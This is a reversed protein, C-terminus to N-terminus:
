KKVFLHKKNNLRIIYVGAQLDRIEIPENAVGKKVIKGITNIITFNTNKSGKLNLHIFDSSPNPYVIPQVKSIVNITREALPISFKGLDSLDEQPFIDWEAIRYFPNPSITYPKRRLIENQSFVVSENTYGLLDILTDNKFLGIADNGNFSMVGNNTINAKNRIEESSNGHAIVYVEKDHLTGNLSLINSWTGSGNTVKKLSYASLDITYGTINAIEIAKNYSNGELYESIFIDSIISNNNAEYPSTITSVHNSILATSGKSDFSKVNFYYSTEPTLNSATFNTNNTTGILSSGKFIHYEIAKFASNESPTWTLEISTQTKNSITLTTTGTITQLNDNINIENKFLNQAIPGGWIQTAFNPNDIFPNRNGQMRELVPNRQKEINSVPDEANWQLLLDIMNPDTAIPNGVCVGTPLTQDGYRLYMYMIMRAVDGKWEDGPYWNGESTIYSSAGNGTAFKRNNRSSNRQADAPRLNHADAGAGITGLNPNALSKSYVHERNWVGSGSGHDEKFRTRDDTIDTNSNTTEWGYILVVNDNNTPDVDAEKLAVWVEPTYSLITTHTSIIKTALADKLQHGTLKINVDNYYSPVQSFVSLSITLSILSLLRIMKIFNPTIFLGRM